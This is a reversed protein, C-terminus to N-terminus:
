ASTPAAPSRGRRTGGGGSSRLSAPIARTRATTASRISAAADLRRQAGGAVLDRDAGVGAGIGGAEVQDDGVEVEGVDIRDGGGPRRRDAEVRVDVDGGAATGLPGTEIEDHRARPHRALKGLEGGRHELPLASRGSRASEAGVM